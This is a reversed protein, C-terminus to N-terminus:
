VAQMAWCPFRLRASKKATVISLDPAASNTYSSVELPSIWDGIGGVRGWSTSWEPAGRTVTARCDEPIPKNPFGTDPALLEGTLAMLAGAPAARYGTMPPALWRPMSMRRAWRCSDPSPWVRVTVMCTTSREFGASVAAAIGPVVLRWYTVRQCIPFVM